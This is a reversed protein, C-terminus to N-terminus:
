KDYKDQHEIMDKYTFDIQFKDINLYIIPPIKKMYDLYIYPNYKLVNSYYNM